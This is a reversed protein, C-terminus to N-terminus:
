PEPSKIIAHLNLLNITFHAAIPGSLDGFYFCMGSFILGLVFSMATWPLFRRDPRFHLSAFMLSSLWVAGPRQLLAGRFFLEEGISSSLALLLIERPTLHHLLEHFERHLVRMWDFHRVAVRCGIVFVFGFAFGALPSLLAKEPTSVGRLLYINPAGQWAGVGVAVLGLAGYFTVVLQARSLRPARPSTALV